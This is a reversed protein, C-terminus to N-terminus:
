KLAEELAEELNPHMFRFGAKLLREPQVRTSALILEDIQEQKFKLRLMWHPTRLWSPRKLAEGLAKAFHEERIAQPSALNYVGKAKKNQILFLIAAVEDDISIWSVWQQGSGVPGGLLWHFPKKRQKLFGGRALVPASRVVCRRVGYGEVSETSAEWHVCVHALWNKGPPTTELILEDGKDGYYGIASAQILVEPRKDTKRISASLASGSEIRSRFISDKGREHWRQHVPAGALNIVATAGDLYPVLTDTDKGDWQVVTTGDGKSQSGHTTGTAIVHYGHETLAATLATGILGTGGAIVIRKKV